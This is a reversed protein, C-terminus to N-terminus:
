NKTIVVEVRRNRKREEESNNKSYARTSGYGKAEIRSESIGKEVLYNKVSLARNQSLEINKDFDGVKDTHGEVRIEIGPNEKMMAVLRNLETHSEKLLTYQSTEFYINNLLITEGITLPTLYFDRAMDKDSSDSPSVAFSEAYYGNSTIRIDYTNKGDIGIRYNGSSSSFQLSDGNELYSIKAPIPKKTKVDYVTGRLQAMLIEDKATEKQAAAHEGTSNEAPSEVKPKAKVVPKKTGKLPNKIKVGYFNWSVTGKTSRGEYFDFVEIGPTLREFYAIFDVKEGPTVKRQSDTPINEAKILKFKTNVDGPKYLRTGSDLWIHSPGGEGRLGPPFRFLKGETERDTFELYVITFKDTLEVRKIIVYDASQEEVSPNETTQGFANYFSLGIVTILAVLSKFNM